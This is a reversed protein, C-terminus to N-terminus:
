IIKLINEVIRKGTKGDWYKPITGKRTKNSFVDNLAKKIKKPNCGILNNTGETVTEPRETSDRLTICPIGLVTTEETIGGSDTIVLKSNKVLYNFELYSMPDTCHLNSNNIFNPNLIKKTRPHVPFIIPLGNSNNIIELLYNELTNKEDVNSPRHLTIVIYNNKSLNLKDWIDPKKFKKLNFLLTDIMTNGVYFIKNKDVGLNILNKNAFESTTFFFDTISDTVIRNIEEPMLIDGSRIGAEVHAVKVGSKKATIACALTSNVDGVVLCLVPCKIKLIKEYEIMIKSTQEAQSGGGCNLNFDPNPINLEKFFTNSMNNDYHQGTHILRYNFNKKKTYNDFARIIASIKIFNPRAGAILDIIM